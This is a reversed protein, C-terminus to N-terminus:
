PALDPQGDAAFGYRALLAQGDPSLVYLAFRWAAPGAGDLVILGYDAGVELGQPLAVIQLAPVEAKALVANTCYTLFLDARGNEMVWAYTNRGEPAKESDPGGTLQLAKAELEAKAGPHSGDAKAFVQWAYDGSPDARPTSTGLRVAPDWRASSTAPL